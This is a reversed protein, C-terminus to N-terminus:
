HRVLMKQMVTGWRGGGGGGRDDAEDEIIPQVHNDEIIDQTQKSTTSKNLPEKIIQQNLVEERESYIVNTNQNQDLHQHGLHNQDLHQHGLHNQGHHHQHGPHTKDLHHQGLDETFGSAPKGIVMRTTLESSPVQDNAFENTGEESM